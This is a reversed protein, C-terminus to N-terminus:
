SLKERKKRRETALNKTTISMVLIDKGEEVEEDGKEEKKFLKNEKKRQGDTMEKKKRSCM